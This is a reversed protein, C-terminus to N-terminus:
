HSSMSKAAENGSEASARFSASGQERQWSLQCQLSDGIFAANKSAMCTFASYKLPPASSTQFAVIEDMLLPPQQLYKGWSMCMAKSALLIVSHKVEAACPCCTRPYVFGFENAQTGCPTTHSWPWAPSSSASIHNCGLLLWFAPSHSWSLRFFINLFVTRNELSRSSSSIQPTLLLQLLLPAKGWSLSVRIPM